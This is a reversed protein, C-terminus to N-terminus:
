IGFLFNYHYGTGFPVPYKMLKYKLTDQPSYRKM